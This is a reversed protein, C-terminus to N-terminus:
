IKLWIGSLYFNRGQMLSAFSISSVYFLRAVYRWVRVDHNCAFKLNYTVKVKFAGFLNLEDFPGKIHNQQINGRKSKILSAFRIECTGEWFEWNIQNANHLIERFDLSCYLIVSKEKSIKRVPHTQIRPIFILYYSPVSQCFFANRLTMLFESFYPCSYM